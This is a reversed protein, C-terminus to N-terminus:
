HTIEPKWYWIRCVFSSSSIQWFSDIKLIYSQIIFLIGELCIPCEDITERDKKKLDLDTLVDVSWTEKEPVVQTIGPLGGSSNSPTIPLKPPTTQINRNSFTLPIPPSLPSTYTNSVSSATALSLPVHEDISRSSQLFLLVYSCLVLFLGKM